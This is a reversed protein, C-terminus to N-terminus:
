TLINASRKQQLKNQFEKAVKENNM